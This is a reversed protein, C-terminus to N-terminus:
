QLSLKKKREITLPLTGWRTGVDLSGDLGVQIPDKDQIASVLGKGAELLNLDLPISVKRANSRSFM